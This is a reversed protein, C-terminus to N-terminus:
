INRNPVNVEQNKEYYERKLKAQLEKLQTRQEPTSKSSDILFYAVDVEKPNYGFCNLQKYAKWLFHNDDIKEPQKKPFKAIIDRCKMNFGNFGKWQWGLGNEKIFAIYKPVARILKDVGYAEINNALEQGEFNFPETVILDYGKKAESIKFKNLETWFNKEPPVSENSVSIEKEKEKEKEKSYEVRSQTTETGSIGTETGSIGTETGPILNNTDSIKTDVIEKSEGIISIISYSNKTDVTDVFDVLPNLSEYGRTKRVEERKALARQRNYWNKLCLKNKHVCFFETDVFAKLIKEPTLEPYIKIIEQWGFVRAMDEISWHSYNGDPQQVSTQRWIKCLMGELLIEPIDLLAKLHEFKKSGSLNSDVNIEYFPKERM